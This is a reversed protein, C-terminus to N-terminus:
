AGKMAAAMPYRLKAATRIRVARGTKTNVAYWGGNAAAEKIQVPVVQGSVKAAYVGGIEVQNKKM